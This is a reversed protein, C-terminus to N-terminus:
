GTVERRLHLFVPETTCIVQKYCVTRLPQRWMKEYPSSFLNPKRFQTHTHTHTHTNKRFVLHRVSGLFWTIIKVGSHKAPGLHLEEQEATKKIYKILLCLGFTAFCM